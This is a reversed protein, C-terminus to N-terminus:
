CNRNRRNWSGNINNKGAGTGIETLESPVTVTNDPTGVTGAIDNGGYVANIFINDSAHEGNINVFASGGVDAMRAGGFVAGIDGAHVTVATSGETKGANGGGYVNGKIKIQAQATTVGLLMM